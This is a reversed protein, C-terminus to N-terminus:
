STDDDDDFDQEETDEETKQAIDGVNDFKQFMALNYYYGGIDMLESHVGMEVIRGFEFVVFKSNELIASLRHAIAVISLEGKSEMFIREISVRVFWESENDLASTAEDMLLM